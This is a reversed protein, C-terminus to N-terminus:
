RRPSGSSLRALRFGFRQARADDPRAASLMISVGAAAFTAGFLTVMWPPIGKKYTAHVLGLGMMAAVCGFLIFVVGFMLRQNRAVPSPM